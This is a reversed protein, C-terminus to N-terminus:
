NLTNLKRKSEKNNDMEHLKLISEFVEMRDKETLNGKELDIILNIKKRM